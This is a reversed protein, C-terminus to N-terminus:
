VDTLGLHERLTAGAYGTRLVGRAQLVPVVSDVFESLGDAPVMFGDCAHSHVGAVMEDAIRDPTGSLESVPRFDSDSVLVPHGGPGAPLTALGHALFHDGAFDVPRIRAPDSYSGSDVDALVAGANWSDWFQAVLEVFERTRASGEGGALIWGARGASLHDLTALQRSVEFPEASEADVAAVLGIHETAGSVAALMTLPDPGGERLMVFDFCGREATRAQSVVEGPTGSVVAALHIRRHGLGDSTM